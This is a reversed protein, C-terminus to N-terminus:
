RTLRRRCHIFSSSSSPSSTFLLFQFLTNYDFMPNFAERLQQQYTAEKNKPKNKVSVCNIESHATGVTRREEQRARQQM